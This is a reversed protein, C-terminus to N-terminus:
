QYIPPEKLLKVFVKIQEKLLKVFVKIQEKLLKVFVKIQEKLLKLINYKQIKLFLWFYILNQFISMKKTWYQSGLHSKWFFV